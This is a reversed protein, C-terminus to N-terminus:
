ICSFTMQENNPTTMGISLLFFIAKKKWILFLQWPSFSYVQEEFSLLPGILCWVLIWFVFISYYTFGYLFIDKFMLGNCTFNLWMNDRSAILLIFLLFIIVFVDISLFRCLIFFSFLWRLRLHHCTTYVFHNSFSRSIYIFKFIYSTCRITCVLFVIGVTYLVFSHNYKTNKLALFCNCCRLIQGLIKM